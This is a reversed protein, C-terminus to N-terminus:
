RRGGAVGAYFKELRRICKAGDAEARVYRRGNRGMARRGAPDALLGRLAAALADVDGPPVLLGTEGPRVVESAGSGACAIVPLGCAMAELYVFGPGGEYVSPAAFVHARALHAPLEERRVYGPMDLLDPAERCAAARARLEKIVVPEGRGLLRLRLGPFEPALRCAAELLVDAGKNRVFKGVFVITPRKDKKAATPRFLRTDVGTHLVPVRKPDLGYHRACWDASCRSSSFVADALRLCASEMATGLRYLESGPEPWGVTHALMVLPGHLHIVTPVRGWESRNLLHVYGEGGYEPFDVVDLPKRAHLEAVATAAEVSYALCRAEETHIPLRADPGPIRTVRVKGDRYEHREGDTSHSVVHVEHGLAALGHAKAYTQTGIGGRATEPPYEQSVLAVRV